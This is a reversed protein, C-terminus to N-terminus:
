ERECEFLRVPRICYRLRGRWREREIERGDKNSSFKMQIVVGGSSTFTLDVKFNEGEGFEKKLERESESERALAARLACCRESRFCIMILGFLFRVLYRGVENRSVRSDISTRKIAIKLSPWGCDRNLKNETKQFM